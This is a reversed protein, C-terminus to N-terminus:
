MVGSCKRRRKPTPILYDWDSINSKVTYLGTFKAQFPSRVVPLLAMVQDGPKLQTKLKQDFSEKM